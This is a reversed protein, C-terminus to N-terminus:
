SASLPVATVWLARSAYLIALSSSTGLTSVKNFIIHTSGIVLQSASLLKELIFSSLFSRREEMVVPLYNIVKNAMSGEHAKSAKRDKVM